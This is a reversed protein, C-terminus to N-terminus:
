ITTTGCGDTTPANWSARNSLPKETSRTVAIPLYLGAVRADSEPWEKKKREFRVVTGHHPPSDSLRVQAEAKGSFVDPTMSVTWAKGNRPRSNIETQRQALSYLGMGAPEEHERGPYDSRGFDVLVQPTEIGRGNDSVVIETDSVEVNIRSAGARRANQFLEGFISFLKADYFRTVRLIATDDM